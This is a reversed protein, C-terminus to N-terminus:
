FSDEEDEEFATGKGVKNELRRLFLEKGMLKKYQEDRKQIKEKNILNFSNNASDDISGLKILEEEFQNFKKEEEVFDNESIDAALESWIRDLDENWKSFQGIRSHTNVERWLIDLRMIKNIGSNYKSKKLVEEEEPAM